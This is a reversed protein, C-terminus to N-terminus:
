VGFNETVTGTAVKIMFAGRLEKRLASFPVFM